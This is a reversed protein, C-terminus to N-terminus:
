GLRREAAAPLDVVSSGDEVPALAGLLAGFTAGDDPFIATSVATGDADELAERLRQSLVSAGTSQTDPLFLYTSRGDVWVVDTERVAAHLEEAATLGTSESALRVRM